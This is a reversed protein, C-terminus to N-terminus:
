KLRELTEVVRTVMNDWVEPRRYIPVFEDELYDLVLEEYAQYSIGFAADSAGDLIAGSVDGPKVAGPYGALLLDLDFVDRPETETRQALAHIKQLTAAAPAYHNAKVVRLGFERGPELTAAEFAYAGGAVRASFEVKSNLRGSAGSVEFKWRRTTDTQKPKTPETLQAGAVRLLDRFARSALTEDVRDEIKWFASGVFDLDIDQSRRVSHYFLRLNAGGKVVYSDPTMHVPLVQLFALQLFETLRAGERTWAHENVRADAM